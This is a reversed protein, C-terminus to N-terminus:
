GDSIGENGNHDDNESQSTAVDAISRVINGPDDIAQWIMESKMAMMVVTRAYQSYKVTTTLAAAMALRECAM